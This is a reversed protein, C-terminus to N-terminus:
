AHGGETLFVTGGGCCEDLFMQAMKRAATAEGLQRACKCCCAMAVGSIHGIVGPGAKSDPPKLTLCTGCLLCDHSGECVRKLLAATIPDSAAALREQEFRAVCYFVSECIHRGVPAPDQPPNRRSLTQM